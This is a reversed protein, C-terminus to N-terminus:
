KVVVKRGGIIYLGPQLQRNTLKSEEIRRGSLDFCGDKVSPANGQGVDQIGTEAFSKVQLTCMGLVFDANKVADTYYSLAYDGTEPIDFEFTQRKGNGFSNATNGGINVNPTFTTSAVEEGNSDEVVVVVSTFDPQDWNCLRSKLSYKGAHLTMRSRALPDGFRAYASREKGGPNQVYLGFDFARTDNTFRLLRCGSTYPLGGGMRKVKGNCVM